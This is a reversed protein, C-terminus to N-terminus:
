IQTLDRFRGPSKGMATTFVSTFYHVTSFGSEQSVDKISLKTTKLLTEAKQIRENKVFDSYSVGIESVFVRSLHRGSIHFHSAVDSLKLSDSLNDLIYLKVENFLSSYPDPLNEQINHDPFPTFIVLLSQILSNALSSLTEEFFIYDTKTAQQLLSKWLLAAITDENVHMMIESCQKTEEIIKSWEESSESEILEFAVYLLFLGEESEIQHLVDPRSLFMTNAHLPYKKGSELYYGEGDIVYCIEFFSHKHFINNYHKPIAGWYHIHFYAGNHDLRQVCQNLFVIGSVSNLLRLIYTQACIQACTLTLTHDFFFQYKMMLPFQEM